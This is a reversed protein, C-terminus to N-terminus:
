LLPLPAVTRARSRHASDRTGTLVVPVLAGVAARVRQWRLRRPMQLVGCADGAKVRARGRSVGGVPPAHQAFTKAGSTHRSGDLEGWVVHRSATACVCRQKERTTVPQHVYHVALSTRACVVTPAAKLPTGERSSPDSGV